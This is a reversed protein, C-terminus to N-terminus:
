TGPREIMSTVMASAETWLRHRVGSPWRAQEGERLLAVEDGVSTFGSRGSDSAV